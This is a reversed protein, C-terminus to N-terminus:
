RPHDDAEGRGARGVFDACGFCAPHTRCLARPSSRTGPWLHRTHSMKVAALLTPIAAKSVLPGVKPVRRVRMLARM